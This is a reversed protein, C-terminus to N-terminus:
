CEILSMEDLYSPTFIASLAGSIYGIARGNFLPVQGKKWGHTSRLRNTIRKRLFGARVGADSCLRLFASPDFHLHLHVRGFLLDLFSRPSLPRLLPPICLVSGFGSRWDTFEIRELAALLKEQDGLTGASGASGAHVVCRAVYDTRRYNELSKPDLAAIVLCDDIVEVSYKGLRANHLLPEIVGHFSDDQGITMESVLRV